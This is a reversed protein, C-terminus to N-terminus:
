KLRLRTVTEEELTGEHWSSESVAYYTGAGYEQAAKRLAQEPSGVHFVQVRKFVTLEEPEGAVEEVFTFDTFVIYPRINTKKVEAVAEAPEVAESANQPGPSTEEVASAEEVVPPQQLPEQASRRGKAETTTAM